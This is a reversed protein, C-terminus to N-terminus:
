GSKFHKKGTFFHLRFFIEDQAQGAAKKGNGFIEVAPFEKHPNVAPEEQGRERQRQQEDFGGIQNKGHIGHGGDKGHGLVGEDNKGRVNEGNEAQTRHIEQQSAREAIKAMEINAHGGDENKDADFHQEVRVMM